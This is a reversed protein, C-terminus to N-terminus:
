WFYVAMMYRIQHWLFANGEITVCYLRLREDDKFLTSCKPANDPFIEELTSNMITWTFDSEGILSLEHFIGLDKQYKAIDELLWISNNLQPWAIPTSSFIM